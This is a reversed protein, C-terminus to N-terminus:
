QTNFIPVVSSCLDQILHLHRWLYHTWYATEHIRWWFSAIHFFHFYLQFLTFSWVPISHNSSSYIFKAMSGWILMTIFCDQGINSGTNTCCSIYLNASQESSFLHSVSQCPHYITTHIHPINVLQCIMRNCWCIMVAVKLCPCHM